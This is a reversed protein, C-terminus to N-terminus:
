PLSLVPPGRPSVSSILLYQRPAQQPGISVPRPKQAALVQAAARLLRRSGALLLLDLLRFATAEGHHIVAYAGVAALLHALLMLGGLAGHVVPATHATDVVTQVTLSEVHHGHGSGSVARVHSGAAGASGFLTFFVHFLCQSLAIAGLTRLRSWRRGALATCIPGALVLTFVWVIPAVSHDGHDGGLHALSHGGAALLTILGAALWGRLLRKM